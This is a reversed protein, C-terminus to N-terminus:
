GWFANGEQPDRILRRLLRYHSDVDLDGVNPAATTMALVYSPGELGHLTIVHAGTWLYNAGVCTWQFM